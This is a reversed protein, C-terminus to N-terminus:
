DCDRCGEPSCVKAIYGRGVSITEAQDHQRQWFREEPTSHGKLTSQRAEEEINSRSIKEGGDIGGAEAKEAEERGSSEHIYQRPYNALRLNLSNILPISKSGSL